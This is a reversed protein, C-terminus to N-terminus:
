RRPCLHGILQLDLLQALYEVGLEPAFLAEGAVLAQL